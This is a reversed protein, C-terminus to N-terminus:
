AGAAAASSARRQATSPAVNREITATHPNCQAEKDLCRLYETAAVEARRGRVDADTMEAPVDIPVGSPLTAFTRHTEHYAPNTPTLM